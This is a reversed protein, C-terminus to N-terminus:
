NVSEHDGVTFGEWSELRMFNLIVVIKISQLYFNFINTKFNANM